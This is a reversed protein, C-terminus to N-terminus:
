DIFGINNQQAASHPEQESHAESKEPSAQERNLPDGQHRAPHRSLKTELAPSLLVSCLDQNVAGLLLLQFKM